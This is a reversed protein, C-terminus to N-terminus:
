EAVLGGNGAPLGGVAGLANLSGDANIRYSYIQGTQDALVYLFRGNNSIAEDIVHAGASVVTTTVLTLAGAPDVAFTSISGSGANATFAFRGDKSAILWCAAAQGTQVPGGIASVTGDTAVTYATAASNGPGANADSVIANGGAFDFGFPTDGVSSIQHAASPIDDEDLVFSDITNSGRETVVLVGNPAFSIESPTSANASLAQDSGTIPTLGDKDLRYGSISLSGANLVFAVNHQVTVSTPRSGLSSVVDLLRLGGNEVAFASVTNSGANVALLARGDDTLAVAGQSGLGAGTGLGGTPFFRPSSLSGDAARDYLAVANGQASNTLAYVAGPGAETGAFATSTLVFTLAALGAVVTALQKM